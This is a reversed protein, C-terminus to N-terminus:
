NTQTQEQLDQESVAKENLRSQENQKAFDREGCYEGRQASQTQAHLFEGELGQEGLPPQNASQETADIYVCHGYTSKKSRQTMTQYVAERLYKQNEKVSLKGDPFFPGDVYTTVVPFNFLFHKKFTNTFCFVPKNNEAPYKFSADKFPRIKTYYPWIHAEPYIVLVNKKQARTNIAERFAKIESIKTPTPMGGLMKVVDKVIPLSFADPSVLIYAKKPFTVLTPTFADGATMTHNAYIFYGEKRYNRLVKRNKIRQCYLIKQFLFVLPTAILRYFIFSVANWLLNKSIYKFSPPLDKREIDTGAFDDSLLDKYIFTKRM